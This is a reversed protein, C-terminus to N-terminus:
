LLAATARAIVREEDTPLVLIPVPGSEIRTANAANAKADVSLGLFGLKELARARIPAAHEGIGGTFVLADLGGLSAALAGIERALRSTFYAVAQEARPDASALLSRMDHSIGSLGKLGSEKYLLKTLAAADYGADVLYILVGPDIQGSRTGMPMGDLASFGMTSDVSVGNKTACLSSGNGLHSIIVNGQSISSFDQKLKSTIFDYSLGHFGYRRVGQDHFRRPLAFTDNVWPHGRHFATDFCAIQPAGPFAARAASIGALNHPQHLPALPSLTKLYAILDDDLHRPGDLYPGGHVVRHGIGAIEDGALLPKLAAIIAALAAQHDPAAVAARTEGEGTDLVLAADPGIGDVQGRAEEVPDDGERYLGFKISSSGANLTLIARSM